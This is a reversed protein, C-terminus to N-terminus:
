SLHEDRLWGLILDAVRTSSDDLMPVHTNGYVGAAPLSIWRSPQAIAMRWRDLAGVIRYWYTSRAVYDGFLVLAPVQTPCPAPIAGPEILCVAQVIDPHTLAATLAYACSSSHAVVVCPGAASAAAAVAHAAAAETGPWRPVISRALLALGATPFQCGPFPKAHAPDASFGRSPGLRFLTWTEHLTRFVPKPMAEPFPAWGARGLGPLDVVWTDFGARLFCTLWGPEGAANTDWIAGTLGGGSLLLLRCRQRPLRLRFVQAYAHGRVYEGSQATVFSGTQGAIRLRRAPRGRVTVAEGGIALGTVSALNIDDIM